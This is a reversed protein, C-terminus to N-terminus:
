GAITVGILHGIGWTLGAAGLGFLVSRLGSHILRVGTILSIGAGIFFLAATSLALSVGVAPGTGLAHSGGLFIFPLVPIIAGAMFLGFSAGAAQWASGGLEGPDIPTAARRLALIDKPLPARQRCHSEKGARAERASNWWPMM